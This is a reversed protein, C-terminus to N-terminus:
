YSYRHHQLKIVITWHLNFRSVWNHRCFPLPNNCATHKRCLSPVKAVLEVANHHMLASPPCCLQVLGTARTCDLSVPSYSSPILISSSLQLTVQVIIYDRSFEEAARMLVTGTVYTEGESGAGVLGQRIREEVDRTEESSEHHQWAWRSEPASCTYTMHKQSLSPM